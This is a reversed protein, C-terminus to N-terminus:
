FSFYRITLDTDFGEHVQFEFDNLKCALKVNEIQNQGKTNKKDCTLYNDNNIHLIATGLGGGRNYCKTSQIYTLLLNIASLAFQKVCLICVSKSYFINRKLFSFWDDANKLGRPHLLSCSYFFLVM